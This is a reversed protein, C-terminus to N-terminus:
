DIDYIKLLEDAAPRDLFRKEEGGLIVRATDATTRGLLTAQIGLEDYKQVLEEGQEAFILISGVSTLQYPNLHCFECVEVTEQRITMKKLDVELGVGSAEAMEWLTALIGGSTIQQMAKAGHDRAIKIAEESFLEPELQRIQNLFTPVFRESLEAEKERMARLTGELGIWKLLVIDQEKRGMSSQLLEGKKLVGVGTMHVIAKSIVPSVEAKACMIQVAHAEGAQEIHEMMAKLRSEYAYPPLMIHVSAGVM